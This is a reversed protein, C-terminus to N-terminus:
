RVSVAQADIFRWLRPLTDSRWLDTHGAGPVALFHKARSPAADFLRRGEDIPILTDRDGHLILLPASLGPDAHRLSDWRNELHTSLPALAPHMGAALTALSAFPAELVVAAPQAGGRSQGLVQTLVAAGLSEGYFLRPGSLDATANLVAGADAVLAAQTPTGSSGSSGRYGPAILGYGRARFRRFRGARAALNGANGHFYVVVPQGPRPPATWVVLTEGGSEVERVTVGALGVDEPAVRAPDFPYLVWREVHGSLALGAILVAATLVIVRIVRRM